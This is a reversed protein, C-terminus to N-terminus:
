DLLFAKGQICHSEWAHIYVFACKFYFYKEYISLNNEKKCMSEHGREIVNLLTKNLVILM